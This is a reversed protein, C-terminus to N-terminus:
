PTVVTARSACITTTPQCTYSAVRSGSESPIIPRASASGNMATANYAPCMASRALRFSIATAPVNPSSSEAMASSM